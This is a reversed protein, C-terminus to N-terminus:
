ASAPPAGGAAAKDDTKPQAKKQIEQVYDDVTKTVTPGWILKGVGQSAVLVVPGSVLSSQEVGAKYVLNDNGRDTVDISAYRIKLPKESRLNLVESQLEDQIKNNQRQRTYDDRISSPNFFTVIFIEKKGNQLEGLLDDGKKWYNEYTALTSIFLISIFVLIKM